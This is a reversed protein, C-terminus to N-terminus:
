RQLDESTRELTADTHITSRDTSKGHLWRRRLDEAKCTMSQEHKQNDVRIKADRQPSHIELRSFGHSIEDVLEKESIKKFLVVATVDPIISQRITQRLSEYWSDLPTHGNLDDIIRSDNLVHVQNKGRGRLTGVAEAVVLYIHQLTDYIPSGSKTAPALSKAEEIGDGVIYYGNSNVFCKIM